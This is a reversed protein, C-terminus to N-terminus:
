ITRVKNTLQMLISVIGAKYFLLSIFFHSTRTQSRMKSLLKVIRVIEARWGYQVAQGM